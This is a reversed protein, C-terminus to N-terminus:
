PQMSSEQHPMRHNICCLGPLWSVRPFSATFFEYSQVAKM